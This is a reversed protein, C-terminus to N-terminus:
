LYNYPNPSYKDRLIKSYIEPIPVYIKSVLWIAFILAITSLIGGEIGFNGGFFTSNLSAIKTKFLEIDYSIGSIPSDILFEQWFNWGFHFGIPLWLMYTRIFMISLLISALFLNLISIRSLHPNFFHFAAFTLSFIFIAFAEGKSEVLKQFLIGRFVLEETASAFLIFLTANILKEFGIPQIEIKFQLLFVLLPIFFFLPLLFGSLFHSISYKNLILGFFHWKRYDQLYLVNLNAIFASTLTALPFFINLVFLLFFASISFSMIFILFAAIWSERWFSYIKSKTIKM